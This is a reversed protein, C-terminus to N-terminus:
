GLSNHFQSFHIPLIGSLLSQIMLNPNIVITLITEKKTKYFFFFHKEVKKATVTCLRCGEKSVSVM